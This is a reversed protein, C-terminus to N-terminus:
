WWWCYYQVVSPLLHCLPACLRRLEDETRAASRLAAEAKSIHAASALLVCGYHMNLMEMIAEAAMSVEFVCEQVVGVHKCSLKQPWQFM